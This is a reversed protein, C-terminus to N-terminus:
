WNFEENLIKNLTNQFADLDHSLYSLQVGFFVLNTKGSFPNRTRLAIPLEPGTYSSTLSSKPITFLTDVGPSVNFIDVGTIPGPVNTIISKLVAYDPKTPVIPFNRRLRVLSSQESIRIPLLAFVPDDDPIRTDPFIASVLLKGDFRLYQIFSPAAFTLMLPTQGPVETIIDSYWFVKKYLKSLLYFSANWFKPQNIGNQDIMDIRDFASIASITKAYVTDGIYAGEAKNADVLLLDATKRKFYYNSVTSDVFSAGALDKIKMYFRNRDNLKLGAASVGPIPEPIKNLTALNEGAYLDVSTEGFSGPDRPVLSLFGLNKPVSVWKSNNIKFLISDINAVGDPDSFNYPLSIVSWITDSAPLADAIFNISPISNKVPIKLFAPNPDLLGKEDIAQVYFYIDALNSLGTFNFLFTSDTRTVLRSSSLGILAANKDTSSWSIKFGKVYGDQDDGSWNLKVQTFLRITDPLGISDIWIRTSPSQNLVM